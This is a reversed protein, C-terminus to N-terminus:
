RYSPANLGSAAFGCFKADFFREFVMGGAHNVPVAVASYVACSAM